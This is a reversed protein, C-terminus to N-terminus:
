PSFCSPAHYDLSHHDVGPTRILEPDVLLREKGNSRDRRVTIRQRPAAQMPNSKRRDELSMGDVHGYDRADCTSAM